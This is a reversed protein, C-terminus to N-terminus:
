LTVVMCTLFLVDITDWVPGGWNSVRSEEGFIVELLISENHGNKFKIYISHSLKYQKSESLLMNRLNIM